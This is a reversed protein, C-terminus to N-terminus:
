VSSEKKIVCATALLIFFALPPEIIFISDIHAFCATFAVGNDAYAISFDPKCAKVYCKAM